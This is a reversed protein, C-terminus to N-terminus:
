SPPEIMNVRRVIGNTRGTGLDVELQVRFRHVFADRLASVMALHVPLNPDGAKLSIGFAEQAADDLKVVAETDISDKPPGYGLWDTVRIYSVKGTRSVFAM